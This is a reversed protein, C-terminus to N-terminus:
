NFAMTDLRWKLKWPYLPNPFLIKLGLEDGREVILRERGRGEEKEVDEEDDEGKSEKGFKLEFEEWNSARSM